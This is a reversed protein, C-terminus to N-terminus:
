PRDKRSFNQLSRNAFDVFERQRRLRHLQRLGRNQTFIRCFSQRPLILSTFSTLPVPLRSPKPNARFIEADPMGVCRM